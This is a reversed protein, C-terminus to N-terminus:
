LLGERKVVEERVCVTTHPNDSYRKKSSLSVVQNDDEYVIGNLADLVLKEYNDIDPKTVPLTEGAIASERKKNSFSKPIPVFFELSVAVPCTFAAKDWIAQRAKIKIKDEAEETKTETYTTVFAKGYRPKVIRFRPRGKPVPAGPITFTITM